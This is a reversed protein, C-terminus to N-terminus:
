QSISQWTCRHCETRQSYLKANCLMKTRLCKVLCHGLVGAHSNAEKLPSHGVEQQLPSPLLTGRVRVLHSRSESFGHKYGSGERLM